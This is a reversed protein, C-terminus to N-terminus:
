ASRQQKAAGCKGGSSASTMCLLIHEARNSTQQLIRHAAHMHLIVLPWIHEAACHAVGPTYAALFAITAVGISSLCHLVCSSRKCQRRSM